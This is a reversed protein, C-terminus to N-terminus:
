REPLEFRIHRVLELFYTNSWIELKKHNSTFPIMDRRAMEVDLNEIRSKLLRLFEDKSLHPPAIHGSQLARQSFHELNLKVGKKVYWEFDFWDRGKVRNKWKRFLLAHMKGAFLNELRYTRVYFSFPKILLNSETYFKKPPNTDVEFKIKVKRNTKLAINYFTTTQKLFASEVQTNSKKDKQSIEVDLGVSEFENVISKFYPTLSFAKNSELLSFDMDESFRDLQHFIRLCTGGYFAAKEFFGGRFLGALAYEQMLERTANILDDETIITYQSLLEEFPTM